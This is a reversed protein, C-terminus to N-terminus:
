DETLGLRQLEGRLQDPSQFRVAHLGLERAADVNVPMDDVFVTKEAELGFRDLMLRYIRPDPKILKERGSVLIGNFADLFDFDKEFEDFKDAPFNTLAYLPHGATKLERVIEVTGDITGRFMEAWRTEYAEILTAMDPHDAILRRVGEAMPRGRDTEGHWRPTCVRSLFDEMAADDDFLKRYLYRPNWDVLVGGLDFVVATIERRMVGGAM